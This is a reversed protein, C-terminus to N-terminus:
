LHWFILHRQSTLTTLFETSALAFGRHQQPESIFFGYVAGSNRFNVESIFTKTLSVVRLYNSDESASM